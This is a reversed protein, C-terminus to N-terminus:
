MLANVIRSMNDTMRHAEPAQAHMLADVVAATEPRINRPYQGGSRALASAIQANTNTMSASLGRAASGAGMTGAAAAAGVAPGGFANGIAFPVGGGLGASVVGTPAAKGIYRLLNEVPGGRVVRRIADVEDDTFGRLRKPNNLLTKFEQRLATQMGASSYNAGVRNRAREFIDDFTQGKRSQQWLARAETLARSAVQANGASLDAPRLGALFDDFRDVMMSALRRESADLSNGAGALVRRMIEAEQIPLSGGRIEDLRGLAATVRPHLTRDLGESRLMQAVDDVFQNVRPQAVVVGSQRATDYAAGAASALEDTSPAARRAARSAIGGGIGGLVGGAAGGFGAGFAAQSLRDEIGEGAGLGHLAGYGAGELAARGGVSAATPRAGALLTMGAQGAAIGPVLAGTLQGALAAGENAGMESQDLARNRELATNYARGIDIGRGQFADIGMEIPTMFGALIEDGFGFTMGQMAGTQFARGADGGIAPRLEPAQPDSAQQPQRQGQMQRYAEGLRRVNETDGAAHARRIGEALRELEDM